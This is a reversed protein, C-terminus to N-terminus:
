YCILLAETCLMTLSTLKGEKLFYGLKKSQIPFNLKEVYCIGGFM